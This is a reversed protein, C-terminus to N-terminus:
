EESATLRYFASEGSVAGSTRLIVTETGDLHDVTSEHNLSATINNWSGLDLTNSHEVAYGVPLDTRRKHTIIGEHTQTDITFLLPADSGNTQSTGLLFESWNDLTDSDYDTTKNSYGLIFQAESFQTRQWNQLIRSSENLPWEVLNAFLASETALEQNGATALDIASAELPDQAIDFLLAHADFYTDPGNLYRKYDKSQIWRVADGAHMGLTDLMSPDEPYFTQYIAHRPTGTQGKLQPYFSIGDIASADIPQNAFAILTPLLDATDILDTNVVGAPITTPGYAILPAHYAANNLSGKHGVQLGSPTNYSIQPDVGGGSTFFILTSNTLNLDDLKTLLDGILVDM